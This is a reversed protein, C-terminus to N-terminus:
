GNRIVWTSRINKPDKHAVQHNDYMSHMFVAAKDYTLNLATALEKISSEGFTQMHELARKAYIEIEGPQLRVRKKSPKKKKVAKPQSPSLNAPTVLRGSEVLEAVLEKYVGVPVGSSKLGAWHDLAEKETAFHDGGSEGGLNAAFVLYPKSVAKSM